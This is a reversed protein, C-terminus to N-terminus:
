CCQHPFSNASMAEIGASPRVVVQKTSPAELFHKNRRLLGGGELFIRPVFVYEPGGCFENWM